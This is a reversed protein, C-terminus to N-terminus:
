NVAAMRYLFAARPDRHIKSNAQHTKTSVAAACGNSVGTEALWSMRKHFSELAM